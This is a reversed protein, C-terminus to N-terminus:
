FDRKKGRVWPVFYALTLLSFCSFFYIPAIRTIWKNFISRPVPPDYHMFKVKYLKNLNGTALFVSSALLHEMDSVFYAIIHYESEEVGTIVSSKQFVTSSRSLSPIPYVDIDYRKAYLVAVVIEKKETSKYHDNNNDIIFAPNIVKLLCESAKINVSKSPTVLDITVSDPKLSLLSEEEKLDLQYCPERAEDQDEHWVCGIQLTSEEKTFFWKITGLLILINDEMGTAGSSVETQAM